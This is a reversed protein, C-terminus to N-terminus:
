RVFWLVSQLESHGLPNGHNSELAKAMKPASRRRVELDVSRAFQKDGCKDMTTPWTAGAIMRYDRIENPRRCDFGGEGKGVQARLLFCAAWWASM